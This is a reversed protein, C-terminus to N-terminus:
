TAATVATKWGLDTTAAFASPKAGCAGATRAFTTGAGTGSAIDKMWYCDGGAAQTGLEVTLNATVAVFVENDKAEAGAVTVYTLSPEILELAASDATYAQTDSFITKEATMTNRLNSQAARNNATQRAGLFSPIAIAILIAIILVVVMLEILTFGDESNQKQRLHTLM